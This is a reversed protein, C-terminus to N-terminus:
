VVEKLVFANGCKAIGQRHLDLRQSVEAEMVSDFNVVKNRKFLCRGPFLKSNADIVADYTSTNLIVIINDSALRDILWARLKLFM